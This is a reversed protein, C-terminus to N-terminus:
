LSKIVGDLHDTLSSLIQNLGDTKTADKTMPAVASHDRLGILEQRFKTIEQRFGNVMDQFAQDQPSAKLIYQLPDSLRFVVANLPENRAAESQAPSKLADAVMGPLDSKLSGIQTRLSNVANDSNISVQDAVTEAVKKGGIFSKRTVDKVVNEPLAVKSMSEIPDIM